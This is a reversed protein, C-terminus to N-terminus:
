SERPFRFRRADDGEGAMTDDRVMGGDPTAIALEEALPRLRGLLTPTRVQVCVALEEAGGRWLRKVSTRRELREGSAGTVHEVEEARDAREGLEAYSAEGLARLRELALRRADDAAPRPRESWFGRREPM